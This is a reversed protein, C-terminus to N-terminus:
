MNRATRAAAVATTASLGDAAASGRGGDFSLRAFAITMWGGTVDVDLTEKLEVAPNERTAHNKL